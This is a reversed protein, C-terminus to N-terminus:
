REFSKNQKKPAKNEQEVEKDDKSYFEDSIREIEKSVPYDFADDFNGDSKMWKSYTRGVVDDTKLLAKIDSPDLNRNTIYEIIEQRIAIQYANKIVSEVGQEKQKELYVEQEKELKKVLEERLSEETYM